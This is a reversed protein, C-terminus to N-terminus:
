QSLQYVKGETKISTNDGAAPLSGEVTVGGDPELWVTGVLARITEQWMKLPGSAIMLEGVMDLDGREVSWGRMLEVAQSVMQRSTVAKVSAQEASACDALKAEAQAREAHIRTV